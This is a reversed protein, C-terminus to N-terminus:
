KLTRRSQASEKRHRKSIIGYLKNIEAHTLEM